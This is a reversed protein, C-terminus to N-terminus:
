FNLKLHVSKMVQMFGFEENRNMGGYKKVPTISPISGSFGVSEENGQHNHFKTEIGIIRSNSACRKRGSPSDFEDSLLSLLFLYHTSLTVSLCFMYYRDNKRKMGQPLPTLSKQYSSGISHPVLNNQRQVSDNIGIKSNCFGNHLQPGPSITLQERCELSSSTSAASSYSNLSICTPISPARDSRLKSLLGAFILFLL